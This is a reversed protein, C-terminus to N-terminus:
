CYRATEGLHKEEIHLTLNYRPSPAMDLIIPLHTLLLNKFRRFRLGFRKRGIM